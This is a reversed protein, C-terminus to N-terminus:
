VENERSRSGGKCRKWRGSTLDSADDALYELDVAPAVWKRLKKIAGRVSDNLDGESKGDIGRKLSACVDACALGLEVFDEKNVM